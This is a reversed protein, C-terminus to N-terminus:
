ATATVRITTVQPFTAVPPPEPVTGTGSASTGLANGESDFHEVTVSCSGAPVDSFDVEFQLGGAGDDVPEEASDLEVSQEAGTADVLKVLTQAYTRGEPVPTKVVAVFVKVAGM